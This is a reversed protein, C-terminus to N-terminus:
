SPLIIRRLEATEGRAEVKVLIAARGSEFLPLAVSVEAVGKDDTLSELSTPSFATGLTTVKVRAGKIPDLRRDTVWGVVLRLMISKGGRLDPEEVLKVTFGEEDAGM